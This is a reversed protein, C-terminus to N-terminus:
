GMSVIGLFVLRLLANMCTECYRHGCETQKPNCLILHCKECKYKDEVANVFKEKYGGQEPVYISPVPSRDPNAKQVLEVSVPPDAKKSADMNCNIFIVLLFCMDVSAHLSLRTGVCNLHSVSAYKMCVNTQPEELMMLTPVYQTCLFICFGKGRRGKFLFHVCASESSLLQLLLHHNAHM